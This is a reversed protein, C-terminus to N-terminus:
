PLKALDALQAFPNAVSRHTHDNDFTITVKEWVGQQVELHKTLCFLTPRRDGFVSRQIILDEPVSVGRDRLRDEDLLVSEVFDARQEYPVENLEKVVKQFEPLSAFAIVRRLADQIATAVADNEVAEGGM